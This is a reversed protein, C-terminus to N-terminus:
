SSKIKKGIKKLPRVFLDREYENMGLSWVMPIYFMTYIVSNTLISILGAGGILRGIAYACCFAAAMPVTM